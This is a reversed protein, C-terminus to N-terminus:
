PRTRRLRYVDLQYYNSEGGVRIPGEVDRNSLFRDIMPFLERVAAVDDPRLAVSSIPGDEDRELLLSRNPYAPDTRALVLHLLRGAPQQERLALWGRNHVVVIKDGNVERQLEAGFRAYDRPDLVLGFWATGAALVIACGGVVWATADVIRGKDVVGGDRLHAHAFVFAWPLLLASISALKAFRLFQYLLLVAILVALSVAARGDPTATAGAPHLRIAWTLAAVGVAVVLLAPTVEPTLAYTGGLALMTDIFFGYDPHIWWVMCAIPLASGAVFWGIFAGRRVAPPLWWAAALGFALMAPALHYYSLAAAALCVGFLLAPLREAFGSRTARYLAAMAIAVFFAVCIEFRMTLLAQYAQPLAFPTLAFLMLQPREPAYLHVALIAVIATILLSPVISLALVNMGLAEFAVAQLLAVIPPFFDRVDSRVADQHWDSRLIGERLLWYASEGAWVEDGNSPAPISGTRLWMLLLWCALAALALLTLVGTSSRRGASTTATRSM